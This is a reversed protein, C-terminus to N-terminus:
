KKLIKKAEEYTFYYGILTEAASLIKQDMDLDKKQFDELKKKRKLAAIDNKVSKRLELLESRFIDDQQDITLKISYESMENKRQGINVVLAETEM